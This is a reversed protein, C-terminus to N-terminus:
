TLSFLHCKLSLSGTSRRYEGGAIASASKLGAQAPMSHLATFCAAERHAIQWAPRAFGPQKVALGRYRHFANLM